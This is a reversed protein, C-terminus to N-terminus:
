PEKAYITTQYYPVTSVCEGKRFQEMTPIVHKDVTILVQRVATDTNMCYLGWSRAFLDMQSKSNGESFHWLMTLYRIRNESNQQDLSISHGTTDNNKYVKLNLVYDDNVTPAFFGFDRNTYTYASYLSVISSLPNWNILEYLKSVTILVFGFHVLFLIRKTTNL